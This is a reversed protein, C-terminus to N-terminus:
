GGITRHMLETLAPIFPAILTVHNAAASIFEAYRQIFTPKGTAGELAALAELIARLEQDDKVGSGLTQRLNVFIETEALTVNNVSSDSSSINVRANYGSVHYINTVGTGEKPLPPVGQERLMIELDRRIGANVSNLARGLEDEVAQEAGPPAWDPAKYGLSADVILNAQGCIFDIHERSLNGYKRKILDLWIGVLANASLEAEKVRLQNNARIAMGSQTMGRRALDVVSEQRESELEHRIREREKGYRLSALAELEDDM